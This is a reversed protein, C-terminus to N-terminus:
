NGPAQEALWRMAAFIRQRASPHHYFAWEELPSPDVQWTDSDRIMYEALALPERSANLGFIDAEVEQQRSISNSLPLAIFGWLVFLGWYAPLAAIDGAGAVQWRGGFRAILRTTSWGVLVIGLGMVLADFVIGKPVHGLVYHGIEHAMVMRVEADSTHEITNDDLVIQATNGWGSVHADLLVSQRSADRVFVESAPVGNARALSLIEQKVPSDQLPTVQNFLPEILQPTLFVYSASVVVYVGTAWATWTRPCRRILALIGVIGIVYFMTVTAWGLTMGSLWQLYTADSFGAHRWRVYGAYTEIPLNLLFLAVFLQAAFMADQIPSKSSVRQALRRMAVAAGSFLILAISGTLVAVRAPLIIYRTAGMADGRARTEPSIRQLFAQTAAEPDAPLAAYWSDNVVTGHPEVRVGVPERGTTEGWLFASLVALVVLALLAKM